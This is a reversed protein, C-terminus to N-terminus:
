QATRVSRLEQRGAGHNREGPTLSTRVAQDVPGVRGNAVEHDGRGIAGVDDLVGVRPRREDDEFILAKGIRFARVGILLGDDGFRHPCRGVSV